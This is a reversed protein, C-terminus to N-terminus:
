DLSDDMLLPPKTNLGDDTPVEAGAATAAAATWNPVKLLDAGTAADSSSLRLFTLKLLTLLSLLRTLL